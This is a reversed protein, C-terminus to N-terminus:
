RQPMPSCLSHGSTMTATGCPSSASPVGRGRLRTSRPLREHLLRSRALATSNATDSMEYIRLEREMLPAIRRHHFNTLVSAAGLGANALGKLANLLSELREQRLSPSVDHHWADDKKKLV